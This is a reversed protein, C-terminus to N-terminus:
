VRGVGDGVARVLASTVGVGRAVVVGDRVLEGLPKGLTPDGSFRILLYRQLVAASPTVLTPPDPVSYDNGEWVHWVGGVRTLRAGMRREDLRVECRDEDVALPRVDRLRDLLGRTEQDVPPVWGTWGVRPPTVLLEAPTLAAFGSFARAGHLDAFAARLRGDQRVEVRGDGRRVVDFRWADPHRHVSSCFREVVLLEVETLDQAEMEFWREGRSSRDVQYLGDDRRFLVSRAEIDGLHVEHGRVVVVTAGREIHHRHRDVLALLDPDPTQM